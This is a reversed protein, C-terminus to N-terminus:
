AIEKIYYEDNSKKFGIKELYKKHTENNTKTKLKTYGRNKIFDINQNFFYSGLKFDRYEPTVYDINIFFTKNNEQSEGVLIGATHNNRLMFYYEKEGELDKVDFYKEIENYNTSIFYKLYESEKEARIIKFDEKQTYLQVLYYINILVIGANMGGTPISGIAFGYASFLLAGFLNFWRLRLISSMTLSVLVIFSALYGLWDLFSIDM